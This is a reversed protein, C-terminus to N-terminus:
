RRRDRGQALRHGNATQACIRIPIGITTHELGEWFARIEEDTLVRDRRTQKSPAKAAVYPSTELISREVGYNLMKGSM